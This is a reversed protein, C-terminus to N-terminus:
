ERTIDSFGGQAVTAAAKGECSGTGLLEIEGKNPFQDYSIYVPCFIRKRGEPSEVYCSFTPFFTQVYETGLIICPKSNKPLFWIRTELENPLPQPTASPSTGGITQKMESQVPAAGIAKDLMSDLPSQSPPATELPFDYGATKTTSFKHTNMSLMASAATAVLIFLSIASIQILMAPREKANSLSYTRYSSLFRLSFFSIASILAALLVSEADIPSILLISALMCILALVANGLFSLLFRFAQY